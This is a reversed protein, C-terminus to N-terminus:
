NLIGQQPHKPIWPINKNIAKNHMYSYSQSISPKLGMGLTLNSWHLGERLVYRSKFSINLRNIYRCTPLKPTQVYTYNYVMYRSRKPFSDKETKKPKLLPRRLYEGMKTQEQLLNQQWDQFFFVFFMETPLIRFRDWHVLHRTLLHPTYLLHPPPYHNSSINSCSWVGRKSTDTQPGSRGGIRVKLIAPLSPFTIQLMYGGFYSMFVVCM